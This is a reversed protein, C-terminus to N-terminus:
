VVFKNVQLLPTHIQSRVTETGFFSIDCVKRHHYSKFLSMLLLFLKKMSREECPCNEGVAKCHTSIVKKLQIKVCMSVMAENVSSFLKDTWSPACVVTDFVHHEQGDALFVCFIKVGM